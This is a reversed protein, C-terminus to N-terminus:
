RDDDPEDDLDRDLDSLDPLDVEDGPEDFLGALGSDGPSPSPTRAAWPGELPASESRSIEAPHEPPPTAPVSPVPAAEPPPASADSPAGAPTTPTESPEIMAVELDDAVALLRTQMDQLQRLMTERREALDAMMRDAEQQATVLSQSTRDRVEEAHSRAEAKIRDAESRAQEVIQEAETDASALVGAFKRSLREYPDPATPAPPAPAEAARALRARADALSRELSDVHSALAVLYARVQNPDYGRRVTAFERQRIQEGSAVLPLGREDTSM